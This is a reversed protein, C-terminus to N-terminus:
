AFAEHDLAPVGQVVGLRHILEVPGASKRILEGASIRRFIRLAVTIHLPFPPIGEKGNTFWSLVIRSPATLSNSKRLTAIALYVEGTRYDYRWTRKLFVQDVIQTPKKPLAASLNPLPV